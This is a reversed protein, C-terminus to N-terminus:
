LLAGFHMRMQDPPVAHRMGRKFICGCSTGKAAMRQHATHAAVAAVAAMAHASHLPFLLRLGWGYSM